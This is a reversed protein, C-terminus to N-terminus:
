FTETGETQGGNGGREAGREGGREGGRDGRGRWRDRGGRDEEEATAPGLVELSVDDIWLTGGGMAFVGFQVDSNERVNFEASVQQWDFSGELADGGRGWGGRGRRGRGDESASAYFRAMRGINDGKLWASMKVRKGVLADAPFENAYTAMEQEASMRLVGAANGSHVTETDTEITAAQGGMWRGFDMGGISTGAGEGFADEFDLNALRTLSIAPITLDLTQEAGERLITFSAASGGHGEVWRDFSRQDEVPEGNISLIVDLGKFQWVPSEDPGAIDVVVQAPEDGAYGLAEALVANTAMLDLELQGVTVSSPDFAGAAPQSGAPEATLDIPPMAGDEAAHLVQTGWSGTLLVSGTIVTVFTRPIAMPSEEYHVIFETGTVVITGTRTVVDFYGHGPTVSCLVSGRELDLTVGKDDPRRSVITGPQLEITAHNDIQWRNLRDAEIREGVSLLGDDHAASPAQVPTTPQQYFLSLAVVAAAAVAIAFGLPFWSREGEPRKLLAGLQDHIQGRQLFLERHEPNTRLWADLEAVQDASADGTYWADLAEEPRVRDSM